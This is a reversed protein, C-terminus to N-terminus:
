KSKQKKTRTSPALTPGSLYDKVSERFNYASINTSFRPANFIVVACNNDESHASGRAGHPPPKQEFEEKTMNCFLIITDPETQINIFDWPIFGWGAVTLGDKYAKLSAPKYFRYALLTALAFLATVPTLMVFIRNDNSYWLLILAFLPLGAFFTIQYLIFKTRNVSYESILPEYEKTM